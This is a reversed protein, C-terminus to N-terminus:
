SNKAMLKGLAGRVTEATKPHRLLLIDAGAQLFSV